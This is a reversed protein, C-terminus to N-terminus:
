GHARVAILLRSTPDTPLQTGGGRATMGRTHSVNLGLLFLMGALVATCVIATTM